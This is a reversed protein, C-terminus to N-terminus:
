CCMPPDPRRCPGRRRGGSRSGIEPGSPLRRSRPRWRWSRSAPWSAAGFGPRARALAPVLRAAIGLSLLLGAPGYIWPFAAWVLPLLTLACLLRAALWRGRRGGLWALPALVAGAALFILLNTLPILWVFHRSMWYFHNLDLTHKRVITAGVELPGAVLGCWLALVLFQTAGLRNAAPALAGTEEVIAASSTM